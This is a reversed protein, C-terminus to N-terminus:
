YFYMTKLRPLNEVVPPLGLCKRTLADNLHHKENNKCHRLTMRKADEFFSSEMGGKLFYLTSRSIAFPTSVLSAHLIQVMVLFSFNKNEDGLKDDLMNSYMITGIINRAYSKPDEIYTVNKLITRDLCKKDLTIVHGGEFCVEVSDGKVNYLNLFDTLTNYKKKNLSSFGGDKNAHKTNLIKQTDGKTM